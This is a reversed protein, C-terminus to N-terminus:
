HTSDFVSGEEGLLNSGSKSSNNSDANFWLFIDKLLHNIDDEEYFNNSKKSLNIVYDFNMKSIVYVKNTTVFIKSLETEIDVMDKDRDEILGKYSLLSQLNHHAQAIKSFITHLEERTNITLAGKSLTPAFNFYEMYSTIITKPLRFTSSSSGSEIELKKILSKFDDAATSQELLLAFKKNRAICNEYTNQISNFLLASRIGSYYGCCYCFIDYVEESNILTEDILVNRGSFIYKKLEKFYETFLTIRYTEFFKKGSVIKQYEFKLDDLESARTQDILMEYTINYLEYSVITPKNTLLIAKELLNAFFIKDIIPTIKYALAKKNITYCNPMQEIIKSVLTTKGSSQLGGIVLVKGLYKMCLAWEQM